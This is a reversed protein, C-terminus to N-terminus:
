LFAIGVLWSLSDALRLALSLTSSSPHFLLFALLGFGVFYRPALPNSLLNLLLPHCLLSHLLRLDSLLLLQFQLLKNLLLFFSAFFCSLHLDLSLLLLQLFFGLSPPQLPLSFPLLLAFLLSLLFFLKLVHHLLDFSSTSSALFLLLTAVSHFLRESLLAM